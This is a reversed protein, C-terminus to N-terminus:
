KKIKNITKIKSELNYYKGNGVNLANASTNFLYIISYDDIDIQNLESNKSKVLGGKLIKLSSIKSNVINLESLDSIESNNIQSDYMIVKSLLSTVFTNVVSNNIYVKGCNQINLNEIKSNIIYVAYAGNITVNQLESNRIVVFNPLVLNANNAKANDLFILAGIDSNVNTTSANGNLYLIGSQTVSLRGSELITIPGTSIFSGKINLESNLANIIVVGEELILGSQENLLVKSLLRYPSKSSLLFKKGSINTIPVQSDLIDLKELLPPIFIVDSINGFEDEFIAIQPNESLTVETSKGSNELSRNTPNIVLASKTFTYAYLSQTVEISEKDPQTKVEVTYTKNDITIKREGDKLLMGDLFTYPYNKGDVKITKNLEIKKIGLKSPISLSAEAAYVVSSAFFTFITLILLKYVFSKRFTEM